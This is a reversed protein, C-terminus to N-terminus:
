RDFQRMCADNRQRRTKDFFWGWKTFYKLASIIHHYLLKRDRYSGKAYGHIVQVAPMYQTEGLDGLRRVLDVDEMYMFYREDFGQLVLLHETRALLMCGSLSPVISFRDIPLQRLEYAHNFRKKLRSPLFRRAFLDIPTPLLKCLQQISGDPYVIRPMLASITPSIRMAQRMAPIVEAGFEIDPNLLLHAGCGKLQRIAINHGAGFGLNRQTHVYHVRPHSFWESQLAAPSNDIIFLRGDDDGGIYCSIAKEFLAPPNNFLVLSATLLM